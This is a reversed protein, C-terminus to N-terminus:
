AHTIAHIRAHTDPWPLPGFWPKGLVCVAFHCLQGLMAPRREDYPECGLSFFSHVRGGEHGRKLPTQIGHRLVTNVAGKTTAHYIIDLDYAEDQFDLIYPVSHGYLARITTQNYALELRDETMGARQVLDSPIGLINALSDVGIWGEEDVIPNHRLNWVLQKSINIHVKAQAKVKAAPKPPMDDPKSPRAESLLHVPPASWPARPLM